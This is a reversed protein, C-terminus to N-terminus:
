LNMGGIGEIQRAGPTDLFKVSRHCSCSDLLIVPSCLAPSSSNQRPNASNHLCPSHSYTYKITKYTGLIAGNPLSYPM